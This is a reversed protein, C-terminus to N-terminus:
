LCTGTRGPMSVAVTGSTPFGVGAGVRSLSCVGGGGPTFSFSTCRGLTTIAGSRMSLRGFARFEPRCRVPFGAAEAPAIVVGSGETTAGTLGGSTSSTTTPCSLVMAGEANTDLAATATCGDAAVPSPHLKVQLLADTSSKLQIKLQTHASADFAAVPAAGTNGPAYARLAVGAFAQAASLTASLTVAGDAFQPTGLTQQPAREAFAYGLVKGAEVTDTASLPSAFATGTGPAPAPRPVPAGEVPLSPGGGCALMAATSFLLALAQLAGTRIHKKM